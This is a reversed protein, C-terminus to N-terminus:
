WISLAIGVLLFLLGFKIIVQAAKPFGILLVIFVVIGIVVGM